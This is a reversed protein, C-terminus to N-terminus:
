GSPPSLGDIGFLTMMRLGCMPSAGCEPHDGMPSEALEDGLPRRRLLSPVFVSPLVASVVRSGSLSLLLATESGGLDAGAARPDPSEIMCATEVSLVISQARNNHLGGAAGGSGSSGALLQADATATYPGPADLIRLGPIWVLTRARCLSRCPRLSWPRRRLGREPLPLCGGPSLLGVAAPDAPSAAGCVALPRSSLPSADKLLAEGQRRTLM